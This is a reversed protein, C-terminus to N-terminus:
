FLLSALRNWYLSNRDSLGHRVNLVETKCGTTFYDAFTGNTIWRLINHLHARGTFFLFKLLMSRRVLSLGITAMVFQLRKFDVLMVEQSHKVLQLPLISGARWHRIRVDSYGRDIRLLPSVDPVVKRQLEPSGYNLIPPLGIVLGALLGDIVARSSM